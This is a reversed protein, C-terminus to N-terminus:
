QRLEDRMARRYELTEVTRELAGAAWDSAVGLHLLREGDAAVRPDICLAADRLFAPAAYRLRALLTPLRAVIARSFSESWPETPSPLRAAVSADADIQRLLEYEDVSATLRQLLRAATDRIDRGSDLLM